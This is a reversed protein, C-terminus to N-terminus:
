HHQQLQILQALVDPVHDLVSVKRWQARLIGNPDIIFTSREIGMYQKGYLSKEKMVDFHRCLVEETDAVLSFTLHHKQAFNAHSKVSDRSVGIVQANLATFQPLQEEFAISEQTCGPTNDKPYFFLVTWKGLLNMHTLSGQPYIPLTFTSIAEDIAISM